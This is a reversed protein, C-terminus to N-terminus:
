SSEGYKLKNNEKKKCGTNNIDTQIKNRQLYNKKKVICKM